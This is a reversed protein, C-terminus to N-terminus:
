KFLLSFYEWRAYKDREILRDVREKHEKSLLTKSERHHIKGWRAVNRKAKNYLWNDWFWIKLEPPIPFLWWKDIQKFMFCFWCINAGNHLHLKSEVDDWRTFYPCSIPAHELLKMMTEITWKEIVIDDNIVLIYEGTAIEVWENRAENVLKNEITIIEVDKNNLYWLDRLNFMLQSYYGDQYLTPIIISLKM